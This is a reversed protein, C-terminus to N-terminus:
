SVWSYIDFMYGIKLQGGRISDRENWQEGGILLM